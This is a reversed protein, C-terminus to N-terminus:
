RKDKRNKLVWEKYIRRWKKSCERFKEDEYEGDIAGLQIAKTRKSEVLDYHPVRHPPSAQFWQPRMRLKRAMEHLEELTDAILHCSPGLRWGYDLLDDVYCPM